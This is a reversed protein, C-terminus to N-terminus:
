FMLYPMIEHETFIKEKNDLVKYFIEEIYNYWKEITEDDEKNRGMQDGIMRQRKVWWAEDLEKKLDLIYDIM